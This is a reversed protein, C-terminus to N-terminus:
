LKKISLENLIILKSFLTLYRKFIRFLLCFNFVWIICDKFELTLDSLCQYMLGYGEVDDHIAEDEYIIKL